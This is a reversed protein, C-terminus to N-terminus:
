HAKSAASNVKEHCTGDNSTNRECETVSLRKEAILYDYQNSQKGLYMVKSKDSSLEM